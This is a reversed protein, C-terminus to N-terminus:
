IKGHKTEQQLFLTKLQKFDGMGNILTKGNADIRIEFANKVSDIVQENYRDTLFFYRQNSSGVWPRSLDFNKLQFSGDILLDTLSLIDKIHGNNSSKLSEFTFGTFTLVSLHNQKVKKLLQSLAEPQEFPEGGLLTVGEIHPTKLIDQILLQVDIAEGGKVPWTEPVMCGECHQSCGQVWICYRLGPGSVTTQKIIRNVQLDM